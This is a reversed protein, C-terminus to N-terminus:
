LEIDFDNTKEEEEEAEAEIRRKLSDPMEGGGVIITVVRDRAVNDGAHLMKVGQKVGIVLDKDRDYVVENPTFKFGLVELAAHVERLSGDIKPVTVMPEGKLNVTLYVVRGGKVESGAKPSQDLVSGPAASRDYASDSVISVLDRDRLMQEAEYSPKGIVSPVEIKEGHHTFTDLCYFTVVPVALIILVMLIISGWFKAGTKGTFYTKLAM